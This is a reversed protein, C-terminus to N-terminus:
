KIYNARGNEFVDKCEPNTEFREKMKLRRENLENINPPKRMKGPEFNDPFIACAFFDKDSNEFGIIRLKNNEIIFEAGPVTEDYSIEESFNNKQNFLVFTTSSTSSSINQVIGILRGEHPNFWNEQKRGDMSKYFGFGAKEGQDDMVKGFAFINLIIGLILSTITSIIVVYKGQFKYGNKTKSWIKQALYTTIACLIIWPYPLILLLFLYFNASVHKIYELEINSFIFIIPAISLSALLVSLLVALWLSYDKILFYWISKPKLNEHKIKELIRNELNYNNEQNM